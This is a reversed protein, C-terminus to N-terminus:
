NISQIVSRGGILFVGEIGEPVFKTEHEQFYRDKNGEKMAALSGM